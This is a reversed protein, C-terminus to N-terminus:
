GRLRAAHNLGAFVLFREPYRWKMYLAERLGDGSSPDQIAVLGMRTIGTAAVGGASREKESGGMHVHGDLIDTMRSSWESM